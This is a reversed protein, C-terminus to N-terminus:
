SLRRKRRARRSTVDTYAEERIGNFRMWRQLPVMTDCSCDSGAAVDGKLGKGAAGLGSAGAVEGKLGNWAAGLGGVGGATVGRKAGRTRGPRGQQQEGVAAAAANAAAGAAEGRQGRPGRRQGPPPQLKQGPLQGRPKRRVLNVQQDDASQGEANGRAAGAAKPKIFIYANLQRQSGALHVPFTRLLQLDGFGLERM